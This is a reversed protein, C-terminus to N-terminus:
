GAQNVEAPPPQLTPKVPKAYTGSLMWGVVFGVTAGVLFALVVWYSAIARGSAVVPEAIYSELDIDSALTEASANPVARGPAATPASRAPGSTDPAAVTSGLPVIMDTGCGPCTRMKGAYQAEIALRSGCGPCRTIIKGSPAVPGHPLQSTPAAPLAPEGALGYGLDDDGAGATASPGPQDDEVPVALVYGEEDTEVGAHTPLQTQRTAAAPEDEVIITAGPLMRELEQRPIARAELPPDGPGCGAVEDATPMKIVAKCAPCAGLEGALKDEVQLKRTCSGCRIM